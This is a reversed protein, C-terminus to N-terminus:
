GRVDDTLATSRHYKVSGEQGDISKAMDMKSVSLDYLKAAAGYNNAIPGALKSALGTALAQYFKPHWLSPNLVRSLYKITASGENTVLHGAEVDWAVRDSANLQIVKLCDAPLAYSYIYDSKVAPDDLALEIHKMNFNWHHEVLADDRLAPLFAQCLNAAATGDDIATIPKEGLQGLADNCLDTESPM